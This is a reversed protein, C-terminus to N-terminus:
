KKNVGIIGGFMGCIMGSIIIIISQITLSTTQNIIGSLLYISLLYIGGILAGNILGNKRMKINGISSGIFISIATIIIISPTILKESINTYTLILSLVFLFILTFIMSIIVGKIINFFSRLINGEMGWGGTINM